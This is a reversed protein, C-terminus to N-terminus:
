RAELQTMTVDNASVKSQTSSSTAKGADRTTFFGPEKPQPLESESGLMMVVTSMSPRDRPHKEADEKEPCAPDLSSQLASSYIVCFNNHEVNTKERQIQGRRFWSKRSM